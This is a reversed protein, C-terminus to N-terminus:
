VVISFRSRDQQRSCFTVVPVLDDVDRVDDFAVGLARGNREFHIQGSSACCVAALVDGQVFRDDSYKDVSGEAFAAGWRSFFICYSARASISGEHFDERRGFGIYASGDLPFQDLRIQFRAIAETGLVSMGDFAERAMHTVQKQDTSLLLDAGCFAPDWSWELCEDARLDLYDLSERLRAREWANLGHLSLTGRRLFDLVRGFTTPELDLFYASAGPVDPQWHGLGLLGDFYSGEVRLLTTKPAKFLTGGVDLTIINPLSALNAQIRRELAAWAALKADIDEVHATDERSPILDAM